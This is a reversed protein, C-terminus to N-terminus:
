RVPVPRGEFRTALRHYRVDSRLDALEPDAAVELWSYGRGLAAELMRLADDRRGALEYTVAGRYLTNIEGADAPVRALEALAEPKQGTKALYLALNSRNTVHTPDADLQARLLQLAREYAQMSSARHGPVWRYADGLNAWMIPASPMLEVAREFAPLAERYKGQYFLATGLNTYGGATPQLSISQQLASAAAAYDGLMHHAAGLLRYPVASDPVAAAAREYWALAEDYRGAMYPIDGALRPLEWDAPALDVARAYHVAAADLRDEAEALDGLGRHADANGPNLVLAHELTSRAMPLDGASLAALGLSVHGDALSPDLSVAHQAADQARAGWAWDRTVRQQRWYARALGAWAPAYRGDLAIASEFREIAQEVHGTRDFRRLLGLGQQTHELATDPRAVETALPMATVGAVAADGGRPGAWPWRQVRPAALWLVLLAAAVVAVTRPSWARMPASRTVQTPAIGPDPWSATGGPTTASTQLAARLATALQEMTQYRESRDHALTKAVIAEVAPLVEPRLDRLPTPVGHLIRHLVAVLHEGAFPRRGTLLEYLVAGLSFIDSRHDVEDGRAQEPSMYDITGIVDGALTLAIAPDSVDTPRVKAIGFDLIKVVGRDTIMVNGPKLDRHVIGAAHAVALADAIQAGWGLVDAIAVPGADVIERLTRGHVLEMVLFDTGDATFIDHVTVIHPDNLASAARAEQLFRRRKQDDALGDPPLVKLAVQRHLRLDEARYVEGMGGRGLPALVRYSGVTAGIMASSRLRRDYRVPHDM